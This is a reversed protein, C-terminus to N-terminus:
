QDIYREFSYYSEHIFKMASGDDSDNFRLDDLITVIKCKETGGNEPGRLGRGVIQMYLVPSYIKRCIM